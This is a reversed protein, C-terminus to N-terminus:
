WSGEQIVIFIRDNWTIEGTEIISFLPWIEFGLSCTFDSKSV